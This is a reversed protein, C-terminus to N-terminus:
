SRNAGCLLVAFNFLAEKRAEEDDPWPSDGKHDVMLVPMPANYIELSVDLEVGNVIRNPGGNLIVGKVNPVANLEDITITHSKVVCNIGLAQLERMLRDNENSGLDILVITDRDM